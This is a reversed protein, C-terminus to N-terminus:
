VKAGVSLGLTVWNWIWVVVWVWVWVWFEVGSLWFTVRVVDWDM